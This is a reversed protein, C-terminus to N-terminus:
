EAVPRRRRSAFLGAFGLLGATGPTPVFPNLGSLSSLQFEQGSPVFEGNILEGVELNRTTVTSLFDARAFSDDFTIGSNGTSLYEALAGVSTSYEFAEGYTFGTIVTVRTLNGTLDGTFLPHSGPTDQLQGNIVNLSNGVRITAGVSAQFLPRNSDFDREVLFGGVDLGGSVFTDFRLVGQEGQLGDSSITIMDQASAQSESTLRTRYGSTGELTALAGVRQYSAIAAVRANQVPEFGGVTETYDDSVLSQQGDSSDSSEYLLEYAFADFGVGLGEISTEYSISQASAAGASLAVALVAAYRGKLCISGTM